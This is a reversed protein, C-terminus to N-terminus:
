KAYKRKLKGSMTQIENSTYESKQVYKESIGYGNMDEANKIEKYEKGRPESVKWVVQFTEKPVVEGLDVPAEEAISSRFTWLVERTNVDIAYLKCDWSGFYLVGNFVAPHSNYLAKTTFKWALRGKTDLVYLNGDCTGGIYLRDNYIFVGSFLINKTSFKWLLRGETSVAYLNNDYSGFYVVDKHAVPISVVSGSTRFKWLLRGDLSLAYLSNDKCGVYIVDKYVCAEWGVEDGM